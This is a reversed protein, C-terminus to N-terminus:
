KMGGREKEEQKMKDFFRDSDGRIQQTTPQAPAPPPSSSCGAWTLVAVGVLTVMAWSTCFRMAAIRGMSQMLDEKTIIERKM